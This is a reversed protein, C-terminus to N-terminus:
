VGDPKCGIRINPKKRFAFISLVLSIISFPLAMLLGLSLIGQDIVLNKFEWRISDLGQAVVSWDKSSAGGDAKVYGEHIRYTSGFVGDAGMWVLALGVIALALTIIAAIKM